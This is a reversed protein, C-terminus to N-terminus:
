YRGCLARNNATSTTNRGCSQVYDVKYTVWGTPCTTGCQYFAETNPACQVANSSTTLPGCNSSGCQFSCLHATIHQDAPCSAGCVLSPACSTSGVEQETSSLGTAEQSEEVLSGGCGLVVASLVLAMM